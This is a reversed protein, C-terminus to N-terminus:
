GAAGVVQVECRLGPASALHGDATLLAADLAEALAVYWADYVTLHHRLEWVRGIFPEFDHCAKAVDVLATLTARARAESLVGALVMKRVASAVEAPFVAPVELVSLSQVARRAAEGTPGDVAAANVFVSADVM